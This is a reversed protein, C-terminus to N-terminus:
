HQRTGTMTYSITCPLRDYMGGSAVLQDACSAGEQPAFSYAITGSFSPPPSQSGLTVELDDNRQLDCPGMGADTADVNDLQFGTLTVHGGVVPGSLIPSADLWNWYLTTSEQTLMVSFVWPDPAGGCSDSTLKARVEYTGLTSGPLVCAAVFSTAAALV